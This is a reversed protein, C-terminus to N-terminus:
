KTPQVVLPNHRVPQQFLQCLRQCISCFFSSRIRRANGIHFATLDGDVLSRFRGVLNAKVCGVTCPCDHSVGSHGGLSVFLEVVVIVREITMGIHVKGKGMITHQIVILFEFGFLVQRLRLDFSVTINCHLQQFLLALQIKARELAHCFGHLATETKCSQIFVVREVDDLAAIGHAQEM